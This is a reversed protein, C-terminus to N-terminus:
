EDKYEIVIAQPEYEEVAKMFDVYALRSQVVQNEPINHHRGILLCGKTHDPNNGTHILIASRGPVNLIELVHAHGWRKNYTTWYTGHNRYGLDYNGPPICSVCPKNGDYELELSACEFVIDSNIGAIVNEGIRITLNGFTCEDNVRTRAVHIISSIDKTHGSIHNIPTVAPFLQM